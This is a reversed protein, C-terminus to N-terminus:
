RGSLFRHNEAFESGKICNAASWLSGSTSRRNRNGPIKNRLINCLSSCTQFRPFIDPSYDDIASSKTNANRRSTKARLNTDPRPLFNFLFFSNKLIKGQELHM